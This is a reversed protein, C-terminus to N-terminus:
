SIIKYLTLSLRIRIFCQYFSVSLSPRLVLLVQGLAVRDFAFGMNVVGPGSRARREDVNILLADVPPTRHARVAGM